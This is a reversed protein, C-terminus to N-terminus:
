APGYETSLKRHESKIMRDVRILLRQYRDCGPRMAMALKAHRLARQPRDQRLYCLALGYHAYDESPQLSVTKRFHTAALHVQGHNFYARGLAERVSAKDPEIEMAKELLLAAQAPDGSELLESGRTFLTYASEM